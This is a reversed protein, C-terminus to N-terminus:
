QVGEQHQPQHMWFHIPGSKSGNTPITVPSGNGVGDRVDSGEFDFLSADTM